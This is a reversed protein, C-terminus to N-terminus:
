GIIDDCENGVLAHMWAQGEPHEPGFREEGGVMEYLQDIVKATLEPDNRIGPYAAEVEAWFPDMAAQAEETRLGPHAEALKEIADIEATERDAISQVVQGSRLAYEAEVAEAHAREEPTLPTGDAFLYAAVDEPSLAPAPPEPAPAEEPEATMLDVVDAGSAVDPAFIDANDPAIAPATADGQAPETASPAQETM